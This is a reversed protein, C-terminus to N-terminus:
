GGSLALQELYRTVREGERANLAVCDRVAEALKALEADTGPPAHASDAFFALAEDLREQSCSMAAYPLYVLYLPPIRQAVAAYHDRLWAMAMGSNRPQEMAVDGLLGIVEHPRVEPALSYDLTARLLEPDRFESL